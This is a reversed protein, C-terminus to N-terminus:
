DTRRSRRPRGTGRHRIVLCASSLMEVNKSWGTRVLMAGLLNLTSQEDIDSRLTAPEKMGEQFKKLALKACGVHDAREHTVFAEFFLVDHRSLPSRWDFTANANPVRRQLGTLIYPCIVLAKALVCAGAWASFSRDGEGMRCRDLQNADERYPVFMPAEFGLALPGTDLADTLADICEDINSGSRNVISGEIAWGLNELRGIDVVAVHMGKPAVLTRM